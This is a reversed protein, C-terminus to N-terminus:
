QSQYEEETVCEGYGVYVGCAPRPEPSPGSTESICDWYLEGGHPYRSRCKEERKENRELQPDNTKEPASPPKGSCASLVLAALLITFSKVNMALKRKGLSSVDIIIYIFILKDLLTRRTPPPEAVKYECFFTVGTESVLM